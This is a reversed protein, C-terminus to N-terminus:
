GPGAQRAQHRRGGDLRGLLAARALGLHTRLVRGLQFGFKLPVEKLRKWLIHRELIELKLVLPEAHLDHLELLKHDLAFHIKGLGLLELLAHHFLDVNDLLARSRRTRATTVHRAAALSAM